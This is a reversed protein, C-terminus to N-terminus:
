PLARMFFDLVNLGMIRAIEEDSFGAEMLGDTLLPLGSADFPTRVGGDFDSGLAVAGVGAVGAVYRMANVIAAVDEGCVAAKWFGVGIIGGREAIRRIQEDSLNRPGPCTGDVGTHTVLVPRSVIALVDDITADSAHALDIIAGLSDLHAVASRGFETLGHKRWGHASGAVANDSMHALGFVRIGARFMADLSPIDGATVHVGETSLIAAVTPTAREAAAFATLDGRRTVVALAGRSEHAADYVLQAQYLARAVPSRWTSRPWRNAFASVGLVDFVPLTRRYNSLAPYATPFSFVQLAVNGDRLRPLDVHGRPSRQLLGRGWLTADSHLDAVFLTQHLELAAPSVPSATSAVGNLHHDAFHLIPTALFAACALVGAIVFLVVLLARIM